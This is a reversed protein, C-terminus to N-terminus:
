PYLSDFNLRSISEPIYGLNRSITLATRRINDSLEPARKGIIEPDTGAVSCAGIVEGSGDFLAAGICYNRLENEQNDISYGRERTLALTEKLATVDTTSYSTVAPLGVREIIQDVEETPLVALIAKGVGTTHMYARDGVATRAILRRSSEIAYIYLVYDGARITLYVSEACQDALERLYPAARDRLEVNVRVSQTMVIVATGLAYSDRGMKEILNESVLTNLLGHATSKPMNLRRAIETLTLRPESASFLNMVQIAKLVSNVM